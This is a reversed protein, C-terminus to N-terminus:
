GALLAAFFLLGATGAVTLVHSCCFAELASRLRLRADACRSSVGPKCTCALCLAWASPVSSLTSRCALSRAAVCATRAATLMAALELAPM